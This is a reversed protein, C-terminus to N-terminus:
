RHVRRARQDLAMGVPEVALDGPYIGQRELAITNRYASFPQPHPVVGLDQAQEHLRDLLYLARETGDRQVVSALAEMWERTEQPDLDDFVTRTLAPLPMSGM